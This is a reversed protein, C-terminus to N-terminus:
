IDMTDTPKIMGERSVAVFFQNFTDPATEPALATDAKIADIKDYGEYETIFEADEGSGLMKRTIKRILNEEKDIRTVPTRVIQALIARKEAISLVAYAEGQGEEVATKVVSKVLTAKAESVIVAAQSRLSQIYEQVKPLKALRSGCVANSKQSTTGYATGYAASYPKGGAVLHAFKKQQPSLSM